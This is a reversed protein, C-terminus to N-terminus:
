ELTAIEQQIMERFMPWVNPAKIWDGNVPLESWSIGAGGARNEHHEKPKWDGCYVCDSVRVTGKLSCGYTVCTTCGAKARGNEGTNHVCQKALPLSRLLKAPQQGQLSDWYKRFKQGKEGVDAAYGAYHGNHQMKHRECWNDLGDKQILTCVM